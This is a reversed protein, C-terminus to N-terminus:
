FGLGSLPQIHINFLFLTFFFSCFLGMNLVGAGVGYPSFIFRLLESRSIIAKLFVQPFPRPLGWGRLTSYSYPIFLPHFFVLLIFGYKVGWTSHSVKTGLTALYYGCTFSENRAFRSLGTSFTGGVRWGRLPQIHIAVPSVQPFYAGWRALGTPTSHSVCYSAVRSSWDGVVFQGVLPSREGIVFRGVLPSGKGVVLQGVLPLGEGVVFQGVLASREGIVFRGV